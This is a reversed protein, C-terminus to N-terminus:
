EAAAREVSQEVQGAQNLDIEGLVLKPLLLDRAERLNRKACALVHIERFMPRVIDTFTKMTEADPEPIPLAELSERRVRQRGTAGSMSKIAHSRFLESRAFLYVWEPSVSRGRMVIFETSGFGVQGDELFGVYGTKGNELCPTIRALLTDGARFKSGSNGSRREIDSIVMTNISLSMMPIFPKEGARPIKTPPDFDIIESSTKLLWKVPSKSAKKHFL